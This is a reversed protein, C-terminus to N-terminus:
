PNTLCGSEDICYWDINPIETRWDTLIDLEQNPLIGLTVLNSSALQISDLCTTSEICSGAIPQLWQWGHFPEDSKHKLLLINGQTKRSCDEIYKKFIEKSNKEFDNFQIGFKTHSKNVRSIKGEILFVHNEFQIELPILDDHNKDLSGCILAGDESINYILHKKSDNKSNWTAKAYVSIRKSKRRDFHAYNSNNYM